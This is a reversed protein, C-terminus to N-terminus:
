PLCVGLFDSQEKETEDVQRAVPKGDVLAIEVRECCIDPLEYMTHGLIDEMIGRLGRAGTKREIAMHAIEILAEETASLKVGDARFLEQYQRLLANKPEILVQVLQEETLEEMPCIVPLRGLFEPLMGFKRFDEMRIDLILDNYSANREANPESGFGISSKGKRRREAIITDIDEFAGGVIFLINETNIKMAQAEPHKRTGKLPVDVVAGEIIKLFAQQVEEHGPDATTSLNEGKRSIKDIEDIYVIGKEARAPDGDADQLLRQLVIEPDSGVYGSATISTADAMAFPVDLLHAICKLMYTKGSGTPGCLIICSKEVNTDATGDEKMRLLKRHNYVATSIIEKAKDQGVIYQDLYAKISAPTLRRTGPVEMKRALKMEEDRYDATINSACEYCVFFDNDLGQYLRVTEDNSTKGCLSCRVHGSKETM